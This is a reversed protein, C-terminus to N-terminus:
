RPTPETTEVPLAIVFTCGSGPTDQVEIRGGCAEIFGKAVALGLGVGVGNPQDGLRQFPRFVKDHLEVPIGPGHDVIHLALEDGCPAASVEVSSGNPSFRVANEIVNAIARELLPEDVIVRPLSEAVDVTVQGPRLHLGILAEGIVGDLGVSDRRVDVVGTQLRSMDLLNAVMRNLREAEEDIMELLERSADRGWEVDESLLSTAAARISALPTRLDHSVAQLLASRLENTRAVTVAQNVEDQLRASNTALTLQTAFDALLNRDDARLRRTNVTLLSGDGLDLSLTGEDPSMPPSVGASTQPTWEEAETARRFVTVGDLAFTSALQSTLSPMPDSDRLVTVAMTVLSRAVARARAAETRRRASSDVLGSVVGSVVLFSLLAMVDRSNRITFTYFPPAFYWNLLLFAAVASLMAPVVGGIAAILVVFLLYSELAIELGLHDRMNTLLLTLLPLGVLALAVALRQRRQPLPSVAFRKRVVSVPNEDPEPQKTSIVHVDINSGAARVIPNIVSGRVIETWRSRRSAGLIIQTTNEARAAQVLAKAVDDGAVEIFRGGLEELLKRDDRLGESSRSSLGDGAVVHVGILEARLRQAMRAARRILQDAGPAGTLAVAVRERTEWPRSIDHRDRYQRLAEDVKDAMWLLALERLAGLNGPRFFNGLAADVKGAEYINGHSMRSRLAEPTMDVLEVQDASRVFVDPVTERQKIDTINEVVDNLSELHQINVTSIVDIGAALLEEIDQWRKENRCGPVNSHALEDVLAVRPRRELVADLDMEEFSQGRYEVIKRPVIEMDRLQSITKPRNHTEVYGIVVDTGRAQRRFGEDLMAFTKGVGPAAGLYIRLLGRSM